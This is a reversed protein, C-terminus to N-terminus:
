PFGAKISRKWIWDSVYNTCSRIRVPWSRISRLLHIRSKPRNANVQIATYLQISYNSLQKRLATLLDIKLEQLDKEIASSDVTFLLVSGEKVEPKRKTLAAHMAPRDARSGQAYQM